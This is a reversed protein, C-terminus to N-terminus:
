TVPAGKVRCRRPDDAAPPPFPAPQPSADLLNELEVRVTARRGARELASAAQRVLPAVDGPCRHASARLDQVLHTLTSV